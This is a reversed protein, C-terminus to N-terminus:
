GTKNNWNILSVFSIQSDVEHPLRSMCFVLVSDHRAKLVTKNNAKIMTIMM